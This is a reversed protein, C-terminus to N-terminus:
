PYLILCRTYTPPTCPTRQELCENPFSAGKVKVNPGLTKSSFLSPLSSGANVKSASRSPPNIIEVPWFHTVHSRRIACSVPSHLMATHGSSSSLPKNLRIGDNRVILDTLFVDVDYREARSLQITLPLNEGKASYQNFYLAPCCWFLTTDLHDTKTRAPQICIWDFHRGAWIVRRITWAIM